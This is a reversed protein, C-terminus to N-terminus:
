NSNECRELPPTANGNATFKGDQVTYKGGVSRNFITRFTGDPQKMIGYERTDKLKPFSVRLKLMGDASIEAALVDNDDSVDGLDRHHIVRGNSGIRYTLIPNGDNKKGACDATWVGILGWRKVTDAITEASANITFAQWAIVIALVTRGLRRM